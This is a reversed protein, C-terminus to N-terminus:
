IAGAFIDAQSPSSSKNNREWTRVAAKWDKMKNKGVMWGNSEYHDIFRGADVNNMRELCYKKVEEFSPKSFKKIINKKKDKEKEKEKEVEKEVEKEQKCAAQLNRTHNDKIDSIKKM